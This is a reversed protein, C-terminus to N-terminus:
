KWAFHLQVMKWGIATGLSGCVVYSPGVMVQGHFHQSNIYNCNNRNSRNHGMIAIVAILVAIVIIVLIVM